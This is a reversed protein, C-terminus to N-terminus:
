VRQIIGIIIDGTPKSFKLRKEEYQIGGVKKLMGNIYSLLKSESSKTEAIPTGTMTLYVGQEPLVANGEKLAALFKGAIMRIYSRGAANTAHIRGDTDPIKAIEGLYATFAESRLENRVVNKEWETLYYGTERIVADAVNVMGNDKSNPSNLTVIRTVMRPYLDTPLNTTPTIRSYDIKSQYNFAGKQYGLLVLSESNSSANEYVEMVRRLPYPITLTLEEEHQELNELLQRMEKIEVPTIWGEKVLYDTMPDSLYTQIHREVVSRDVVVEEEAEIDYRRIFNGLEIDRVLDATVKPNLLFGSMAEGNVSWVENFPYKSFASLYVGACPFLVERNFLYIERIDPKNLQNGPNTNPM